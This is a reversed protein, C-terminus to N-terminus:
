TAGVEDGFARQPAHQFQQQELGTFQRPVVQRPPPMFSPEEVAFAQGGPDALPQLGPQLAPDVQVGLRQLALRGVQAFPRQGLQTRRM